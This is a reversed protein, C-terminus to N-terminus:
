VRERKIMEVATTAVSVTSSKLPGVVDAAFASLVAGVVGVLRMTVAIVSLVTVSFHFGEVSLEPLNV